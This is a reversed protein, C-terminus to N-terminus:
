DITQRLARLQGERSRGFEPSAPAHHQRVPTKGGAESEMLTEALEVTFIALRPQWTEADQAHHPGKASRVTARM